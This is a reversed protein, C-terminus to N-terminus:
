RGAGRHRVDVKVVVTQDLRPNPSVEKARIEAREKTFEKFGHRRASLKKRVAAAAECFVKVKM